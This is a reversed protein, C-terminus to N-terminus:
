LKTLEGSERCTRFAKVGRISLNSEWIVFDCSVKIWLWFTVEGASTILSLSLQRKAIAFRRFPDVTFACCKMWLSEGLFTICSSILISSSNSLDGSVVKGSSLNSITSSHTALMLYNALVLFVKLSNRANEDTLQSKSVSHISRTQLIESRQYSYVVSSKLNLFIRSASESLGTTLLSWFSLEFAIKSKFWSFMSFKLAISSKSPLSSLDILIAEM